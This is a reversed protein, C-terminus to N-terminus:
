RWGRETRRQQASPSPGRQARDRTSPSAPKAPQGERAAAHRERDAPSLLPTVHGEARCREIHAEEASIQAPMTRLGYDKASGVRHLGNEIRYCQGDWNLKVHDRNASPGSDAHDYFKHHTEGLLRENPDSSSRMRAFTGYNEGREVSRTKIEGLARSWSNIRQRSYGKTSSGDRPLQPSEVKELDVEFFDSIWAMTLRHWHEVLHNLTAM